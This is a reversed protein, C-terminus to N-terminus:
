LKNDISHTVKPVFTTINQLEQEANSIKSCLDDCVRELSYLQLTAVVDIDEMAKMHAKRGEATLKSSKRNQFKRKAGSDTKQVICDAKYKKRESLKKEERRLRAYESPGGSNIINQTCLSGVAEVANTKDFTLRKNLSM